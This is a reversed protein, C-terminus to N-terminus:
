GFFFPCSHGTGAEEPDRTAGSRPCAPTPALSGDTTGSYIVTVTAQAGSGLGLSLCIFQQSIRLSSPFCEGTVSQCAPLLAHPLATATYLVNGRTRHVSCALLSGCSYGSPPALGLIHQTLSPPVEQRWCMGPLCLVVSPADCQACWRLPSTPTRHTKWHRPISPLELYHHQGDWPESWAWNLVPPETM